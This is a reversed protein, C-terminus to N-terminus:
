AARRSGERLLAVPPMGMKTLETHIAHSIDEMGIRHGAAAAIFAARLTIQRIQGGTLEVRRALYRLDEDVLKHSRDPLCQRWIEERAKADPKPFEIVFRLRRLFAKDLNGLMNTTLIVLGEFAEIRQLLYAVEINAYRDHADKVESRKGLLADAEDLLIAAGSREADDFVMSINKETEGIYKSVVKSLDISLLVKGLREAMAMAAATKGTGSVGSFLATVGRGYPLKEGFNWDDMVKSALRVHAVVEELQDKRDPPLVIDDLTFKLDVRSALGSIGKLSLEKCASFFLESVPGALGGTEKRGAALVLAEEIKAADLACLDALGRADLVDDDVGLAAAVKQMSASRIEASPKEGDLSNFSMGGLYPVIAASDPAIVVFNCGLSYLANIFHPLSDYSGAGDLDIVPIANNLRAIRGVRLACDEIELPANAAIRAFEIRVSRAHAAYTGLELWAKWDAPARGELVLVSSSGPGLFARIQEAAGAEIESGALLDAGAWAGHHLVPFVRHDRELADERGLLWQVLCPDIRLPEDAPISNGVPTDFVQWNTLRGGRIRALENPDIGLLNSFLGFTGVRRSLDDLLFGLCKQFRFDLEPALALVMMRFEAPELEFVRAAIALPENGERNAFATELDEGARILAQHHNESTSHSLPDLSQAVTERTIAFGPVDGNESPIAEIASRFLAHIWAISARLLPAAAIEEGPKTDPAEPGTLGLRVEAVREKNEIAFREVLERLATLLVHLQPDRLEIRVVDGVIDVRVIVVESRARLWREQLTFTDEPHGILVIACRDLARGSYLIEDVDGKELCRGAFLDMDSRAAISEVVGHAKIDPSTM